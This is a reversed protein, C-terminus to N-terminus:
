DTWPVDLFSIVCKKCSNVEFVTELLFDIAVLLPVLCLKRLTLLVGSMGHDIRLQYVLQVENICFLHSPFSGLKETSFEVIHEKM